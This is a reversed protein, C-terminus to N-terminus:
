LSNSHESFLTIPEHTHIRIPQLTSTTRSTYIRIPETIMTCFAIAHRSLMNKRSACLNLLLTNRARFEPSQNELKRSLVM